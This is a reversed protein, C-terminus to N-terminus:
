DFIVTSPFKIIYQVFSFDIFLCTQVFDEIFCCKFTGVSTVPILYSLTDLATTSLAFHQRCSVSLPTLPRLVAIIRNNILLFYEIVGYEHNGGKIYAVTYSNRKKVRRYQRSYYMNGNYEARYVTPLLGSPVEHSPLLEGLSETLEPLPMKM